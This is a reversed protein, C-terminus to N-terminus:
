KVFRIPVTTDQSLTTNYEIRTENAVFTVPSGFTQENKVQWYSPHHVSITVPTDEIGPQKLQTVELVGGDDTFQVQGERRFVVRLTKQSGADVDFAIGLVFGGGEREAREIYPLIPIGKRKPDRSSVIVGDITVEQPLTGPPFLVQMYTRYSEGVQVDGGVPATNHLLVSLIESMAGNADVTIERHIERKIFYNIKNVSMNAEVIGLPDAYCEPMSYIKCNYTLVKRGAWGFHEVLSQLETDFFVFQINQKEISSTLGSFVQAANINKETTLKTIIARALSGLFDKKQTSGPFFNGQAYFLSKGFFNEASIRDNFDPLEIPGTARLLDVIVPSSIGIVGDISTGTEKEYFWAAKTGSVKFDPDWNSDRLYWHEQALLDRIPTPPDVHGKLQGDPEYVDQIIFETMKGDSFTALGLSGIFGGTPRIEMNNQLLVLYRKQEKYGSLEPYLSFFRSVYGTIGRAKTLQQEAREGLTHITKLSFPFPRDRLLNTLQALALGLNNELSSMTIQMDAVIAAPTVKTPEEGVPFLVPLVEKSKQFLAYVEEEARIANEFLTLLREQNRVTTGAGLFSLPVASINVMLRSQHVWYSSVRTLRVADQAKGQQLLKASYWLSGSSFIITFVYWLVPLVVAAIFFIGGWVYQKRKPKRGRKSKKVPEEGFVDQIIKGVREQDGSSLLPEVVDKTVVVNERWPHIQPSSKKVSIDETIEDAHVNRRKDVFIDVSAFFFEFLSQVDDDTMDVADMLMIKTQPDETFSDDIHGSGLVVGLRRVGHNRHSSFIGKVFPSDGVVFHYDIPGSYQQNIFVRCGNAELKERLPRVYSEDQADIRAIVQPAQDETISVDASQIM